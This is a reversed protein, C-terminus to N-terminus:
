ADTPDWLDALLPPLDQATHLVRAIRPPRAAAEYVLVYHFRTLSWFRYRPPALLPQVRGALPHRGLLRAAEGVAQRLGRAAIENDEANRRVAKLLEARAEPALIAPRSM